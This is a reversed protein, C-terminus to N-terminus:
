AGFTFSRVGVRGLEDVLKQGLGGPTTRDATIHVHPKDGDDDGAREVWQAMSDLFEDWSVRREQYSLTRADIIRVYVAVGSPTPFGSCAALVLLGAVETTFRAGGPRIKSRWGM